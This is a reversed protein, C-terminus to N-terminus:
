GRAKQLKDAAAKLKADTIEASSGSTVTTQSHGGRLKYNVHAHASIKFFRSIRITVSLSGDADVQGSDRYTMGLMLYIGITVIGAVRVSGAIVLLMGVSLGGGPRGIVKRYAIVVSLAIYVAGAFPGVAFALAASGGAAAEVAVSLQSDFPRYEADIQIYGTGGIIFISFIFPAEPRSLNFRNALMFDPYAVLQFRNSIAINTVGSTGFNLTMPPLSFEHELGIPMSGQKLIRLGGAEDPFISSLLDQIFKFSPNLRIKKPDFIVDLGDKKTFQIAVERFMVMSQSSVAVDIDTDIRGFGTQTVKETDKSAELRVQGTLRLDVFDVKFIGLSFLSRRGSMPANIDVQVWARANKKDFDHTVKVADRVGAPLRYGKFLNDLKAGGFNKFVSAIDFNALDTPMLRDGIKDFPLSLGLAKLEDGLQDFLAKAPTTEIIDSLEDFGSRIRDIDSKLAAIEPSSTVASYLKLINSPAAMVGGSGLKGAQDLVRDAFAHATEGVRSLDNQLGRLTHDFARASALIADLNGLDDGLKNQLWTEIQTKKDDVYKQADTKLAEIYAQAEALGEFASQCAADLYDVAGLSQDSFEDILTGIEEPVTDLIAFVEQSASDLNAFKQEPIPDIIRNIVEEIKSKLLREFLASPGLADQLSKIASEADAAFGGFSDFVKAQLATHYETLLASLRGDVGHVITDIPHGFAELSQGAWRHIESVLGEMSTTSALLDAQVADFAPDTMRDVLAHTAEALDGLAHVARTMADSVAGLAVMGREIQQHAVSGATVAFDRADSALKSLDAVMVDLNGIRALLEARLGQSINATEVTGRADHLKSAANILIGSKGDPSSLKDSAATVSALFDDIRAEFDAIRGALDSKAAVIGRLAKAVHGAVSQGADDIEIALRQRAEELASTADDAITAINATVGDFFRDYRQLSWPKQRDYADAFQHLRAQTRGVSAEIEAGFDNAIARAKEIGAGVDGLDSSAEAFAPRAADIVATEVKKRVADKTIPFTWDPIAGRIEAAAESVHTLLLAKKRKITGIADSKLQECKHKGTTPLDKLKSLLKLKENVGSDKINKKVVSFYTGNKIKDEYVHQLTGYAEKVAQKDLGAKPRTAETVFGQFANSIEELGAPAGSGDPAWFGVEQLGDEIGALKATSDLLEGYDGNLSAGGSHNARMFSVSEIDVFLPKEARNANIATKRAAPAVRWTFRRTGPLYRSVPRRRKGEGPDKASAADAYKALEHASPMNCYDVGLRTQWADTDSTETSFDAFFYLHDTDLCEQAVLPKDEEGEAHTVFAIDPMPYVIPRKRAAARNWLPIEWGFDGVDRSWASDVNIIRSNFRVRDLFGSSRRPAEAFDPYAREPELLEIYESVKRLVPRRTRTRKPDDSLEPAFQASPSVTREYVVVHKARHWLAGIRGNIEFQLREVFGNRTRSIVAVNGFLFTAKQTADGGIPSLAIQEISGGQSQPRSLIRRFLNASEIAWLAGGGLGQPHHRPHSQDPQAQADVPSGGADYGGPSQDLALADGGLDVPDRHLATSRLAYTVGDEFRAPTFDIASDPDRSWVELREPRRVMIASRQNWESAFEDGTSVLRGVPRGVLAEIEAIRALRGIGTEAGPEVGVSLGYLFEGRMASLAAGLGYTGVQRFLEYSDWEAIYFGRQLDSPRIWFEASPTLRFEVARRAIDQGNGLDAFPKNPAGDTAPDSLDHIELRRPKDMSEGVGQPPFTYHYHDAVQRLQWIRDNSDYTAVAASEEDGRNGLDRHRFKLISFPEEGLLYFNRDTSTASTRDFLRAVLRRDAVASVNERLELIFSQEETHHTAILLPSPRNSTDGRAIDPTVPEVQGIGTRHLLEMKVPHVGFRIAPLCGASSGGSCGGISFREPDNKTLADPSATQNVSKFKLSSLRGEVSNMAVDSWDLHVNYNAFYGEIRGGPRLVLKPKKDSSFLDTLDADFDIETEKEKAILQDQSALSLRMQRKLPSVYWDYTGNTSFTPVVEASRMILRANGSKGRSLKPLATQPLAAETASLGSRLATITGIAQALGGESLVPTDRDTESDPTGTIKEEWQLRTEIKPDLAVYPNDDFIRKPDPGNRWSLLVDVAIESNGIELVGGMEPALRLQLLGAKWILDGSNINQTRKLKLRFLVSKRDEAGGGPFSVSLDTEIGSDIGGPFSGEFKFGNRELIKRAEIGIEKAVPWFYKNDEGNPMNIEAFDADLSRRVSFGFWGLRNQNSPPQITTSIPGADESRGAVMTSIGGAEVSSDVISKYELSLPFARPPVLGSKLASCQKIPAPLLINTRFYSLGNVPKDYKGIWLESYSWPVSKFYKERRVLPMSFEPGSAPDSSVAFQQLFSAGRFALIRKNDTKTAIWYATDSDEPLAKFVAVPDDLDFANQSPQPIQDRKEPWVSAYTWRLFARWEGNDAERFHIEVVGKRTEPNDSNIAQPVPPWIFDGFLRFALAM